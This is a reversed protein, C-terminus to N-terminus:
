FNKFFLNNKESKTYKKIRIKKDKPNQCIILNFQFNSNISEILVEKFLSGTVNLPCSGFFKKFILNSPVKFLSSIINKYLKLSFPSGPKSKIFGIV